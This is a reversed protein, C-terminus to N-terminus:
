RISQRHYCCFDTLLSTGNGDRLVIDSCIPIRTIKLRYSQIMTYGADSTYRADLPIERGEMGEAICFALANTSSEWSRNISAYNTGSTGIYNARLVAGEPLEGGREVYLNMSGNANVDEIFYEATHTGLDCTGAYAPYNETRNNRLVRVEGFWQGSPLEIPLVTSGNVTVSGETRNYSGDSISFTYDEM